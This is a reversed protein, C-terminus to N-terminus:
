GTRADFARVEGSAANTRNNDAVSSGSVIMGNIVAPPSTLQYEEAEFPTNHLAHRLDITAGAGFGACAAGTKADLAIIRADITSLYIRRQCPAGAAARPDVWTSVGRTAFDGWNGGHNVHADYTWRATGTVADVAM